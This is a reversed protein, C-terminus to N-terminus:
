AKFFQLHKGSQVDIVYSTSSECPKDLKKFFAAWLCEGLSESYTLQKCNQKILYSKM